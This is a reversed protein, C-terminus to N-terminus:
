LSYLFKHFLCAATLVYKSEVSKRPGKWVKAYISSENENKDDILVSSNGSVGSFQGGGACGIGGSSSSPPTSSSLSSSSSSSSTTVQSTTTKNNGSISCDGNSNNSFTVSKHTSYNSVISPNRHHAPSGPAIQHSQQQQWSSGRNTASATSSSSEPISRTFRQPHELM